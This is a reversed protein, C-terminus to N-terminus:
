KSLKERFMLIKEKVKKDLANIEENSHILRHCNNHMSALNNVRNVIEKPLSPSIHHTHIDTLLEKGCVRCKGKDRNFAYPRNLFYEFNYLTKPNTNIKMNILNTNSNLLLEDARVGLPKKNTRKTYLNRGKETFPTEEQNKQPTHTWKCFRLSTLGIWLNNYKIAPIKDRAYVAHTNTLNATRNAYIWGYAKENGKGRMRRKLAKYGTYKMNDEYKRLIINVYTACQYYNILGRIKSNILNIDNVLNDLTTSKRLKQIRVKLNSLKMELSDKNPKTRTIYKRGDNTVMKFDLGLFTIHRKRVNTILTKDNSLQLKLEEALFKNIRHKWKEANTKNNTILVWDDAYRIFYAPKLNTQKMARLRHESKSYKFKTTKEEWERSIFQDLADLYVNALLPSIIGGQPTGLENQISENMVGAKLMEKILMLVRKDKIGMGYLRKILITHNVNDFFKSIDGEVVWHYKTRACVTQIRSIALSAERMPRFGYSHKFFQAELIPEIILRVCEQIVRDKISPIGLPRKEKKGPKPIWVRRVKNAKYSVFSNQIQDITEKYGKNLIADRINRCDSGPTNSGKNGKLKHIATM